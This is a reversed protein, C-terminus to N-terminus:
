QLLVAFRAYDALDIDHDPEFDFIRCGPSLDAPGIGSFCILLFAADDLDIVGNRDFDGMAFPKGSVPYHYGMDAVGADVAEDNRTTLGDLALAAATDSGADVCPSDTSQGSAIQGLYLCGLPGPVFLPDDDINGQGPYAAGDNPDADQVCSFTVTPTSAANGIENPDDDWLICNTIIPDSGENFIGGGQAASNDHFTCNAVTSDSAFNYMGGGVSSATNKSFICNDFTPDSNDNLVGGGFFAVNGSFTCGAVTTSGGNNYMGGGTDGANERLTCDTVMPSGNADNLMGGGINHPSPGDANGGTITFGDLIATADVGGGTVVHYSNDAHSPENPPGTDDGILDGSLTCEYLNIDREDPDGGGCNGGACGRYGGSITLNDLLQFAATRDGPTVEGREDLDPYHTGGAVRIQTVSPDGAAESLADQLYKYPTAWSLGDGGMAADDDVHIISGAGAPESLALAAVVCAHIAVVRPKIMIM